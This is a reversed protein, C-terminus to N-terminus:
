REPAAEGESRPECQEGACGLRERALRRERFARMRSAPVNGTDRVATEPENRRDEETSNNFDDRGAAVGADTKDRDEDAKAGDATIGSTSELTRGRAENQDAAAKWDLVKQGAFLLGVGLLGALILKITEIYPTLPTPVKM